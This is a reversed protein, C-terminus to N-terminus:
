TPFGEHVLAVALMVGAALGVLSVGLGVAKLLLRGASEREPEGMASVPRARELAVGYGRHLKSMHALSNM